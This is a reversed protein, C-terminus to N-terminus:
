SLSLALFIYLTAYHPPLPHRNYCFLSFHIFDWFNCCPTRKM